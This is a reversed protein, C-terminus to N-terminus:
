RTLTVILAIISLLLAVAGIVLAPWASRYLADVARATEPLMSAPQTDFLSQRM